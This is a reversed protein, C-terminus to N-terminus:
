LLPYLLGLKGNKVIDHCAHIALEHALFMHYDMQARIQDAKHRNPENINMREDIRMMLNQENHIQWYKVCDGFEQFCIKAYREFAYVCERSEWGNYKEVLAYPLDFHYLTIFPM